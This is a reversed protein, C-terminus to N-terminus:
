RSNEEQYAGEAALANEHTFISRAKEGQPYAM